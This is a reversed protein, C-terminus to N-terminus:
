PEYVAAGMGEKKAAEQTETLKKYREELQKELNKVEQQKRVQYQNYEVGNVYANAATTRRTISSGSM